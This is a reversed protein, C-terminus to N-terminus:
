FTFLPKEKPFFIRCIVNKEQIKLRWCLQLRSTTVDLQFNDWRTPPREVALLVEIYKKRAASFDDLSFAMEAVSFAEFIIPLILVVVAKLYSM